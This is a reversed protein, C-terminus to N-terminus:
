QCCHGLDFDGFISVLCVLSKSRIYLVCRGWLIRDSWNVCLDLYLCLFTSTLTLTLISTWTLTLTLILISNPQGKSSEEEKGRMRDLEKLMRVILTVMLM